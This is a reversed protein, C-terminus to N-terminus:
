QAPAGGRAGRGPAFGGRGGRPAGEGRQSPFGGRGGRPAGQGGPGGRGRGGGYQGGRQVYPTSGPRMRREEVFLNEGGLEFPGATAKQYGEATKFDVFACNKQRAIDLYLVEGFKELISRLEGADVNDAVNKIYGRHQPVDQQAANNNTQKSQQRTHGVATWEDQSDSGATEQQRQAAPASPAATSPTAPAPTAAKAAAVAARAPAAAGTSSPAQTPAAPMAVRAQTSALQAWTKPASPVAPKPAPASQPAAQKPPSAVPTPEPDKPTEQEAEPEVPTQEPEAEVAPDAPAAALPTDEVADATETKVEHVGNTTPASNEQETPKIVKEELEQDVKNAGQEIAVPDASSTLTQTEAEVPATQTETSSETGSVQQVDETAPAAAEAEAEEEEEVLYRFIDNLVFYGNTQTALVFTQTFKKHPQSKNSIEGIVQIVINSDSAQSDVNTVRVKCDQFDLERIKENIARQGVCVAVKDTEQGSVFQSRKNYFLYLKEPSRSLTTYYQEVFYWGVEDKSIDPQAPASTNNSSTSATAAPPQAAAAPNNAAYSYANQDMGGYGQHPAYSGNPMHETAM